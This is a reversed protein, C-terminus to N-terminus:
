VWSVGRFGDVDLNDGYAPVRSCICSAELEPGLLDCCLGAGHHLELEPCSVVGDCLGGKVVRTNRNAVDVRANLADVRTVHRDLGAHGHAHDGSVGDFDLVLLGQPQVAALGLVALTSHGHDDVLLSNLM